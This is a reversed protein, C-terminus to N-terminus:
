RCPPRDARPIPADGADHGVTVVLKGVTHGAEMAAWAEGIEAWPRVAHITAGIRGSTVLPWWRRAVEAVIASKDATSRARLTTGRLRQAGALLRGLDVEAARGGLLALIVIRGGPSLVQQDWGVYPGGVPDVILAAGGPEWARVAAVFDDGPAGRVWGGSAGLARCRALKHDSGVTVFVRRGEERCLQIGVCGIGSAGAHWVVAGGAPPEDEGLCTWATALAEPLGAAEAWPMADPVPLLCGASAVAHTALGGGGLLAAVRDGPAVGGVGPGVREVVGACELGLVDTVGAPPPYRGARQLLDARNLGAAVVRLLVEGPGPEPDPREEREVQGARVVLGIM